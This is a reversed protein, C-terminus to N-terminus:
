RLHRLFIMIYLMFIIKRKLYLEGIVPMEYSSLGIITYRTPVDRIDVGKVYTRRYDEQCGPILYYKNHKINVNRIKVTKAFIENKHKVCVATGDLVTHHTMGSDYFEVNASFKVRVKRVIQDNEQALNIEVQERDAKIIELEGHPEGNADYITFKDGDAIVQLEFAYGELHNDSYFYTPQNRHQKNTEFTLRRAYGRGISLLSLPVGQFLYKTTKIPKVLYKFGPIVRKDIYVGMVPFQHDELPNIIYEAPFDELNSANLRLPPAANESKKKM